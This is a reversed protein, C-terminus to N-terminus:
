QASAQGDQPDAPEHSPRLLDALRVRHTLPLRNAPQFERPDDERQGHSGDAPRAGRRTSEPWQKWQNVTNGATADETFNALAVLLAACVMVRRTTMRAEQRMTRGDCKSHIQDPIAAKKECVSLTLM